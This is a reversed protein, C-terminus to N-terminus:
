RRWRDLLRERPEPERDADRRIRQAEDIDDREDEMLDRYAQVAGKRFMWAEILVVLGALSVLAWLTM